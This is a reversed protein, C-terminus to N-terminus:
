RDGRALAELTRATWVRAMERKYRASGRADDLPDVEDAVLASAERIAAPTLLEGRLADEVARARLPTTGLSGLGIRIEECRGEDDMSVLAGVSVTAYDDETRPLFKTYGVRAGRPLPPIRVGRLLEGEGLATEFFDVFFAHLPIARAGDGGCVLAEADLALLIPPPDQAPDAHVLNGGITAQNRIRVTAIRGFTRALEAAFGRVAESTEIERHTALAGIELGGDATGSIGHLEGIGQLGVVVAPQVLGQKMMLVLSTGGAVPTADEGYTRLLEL